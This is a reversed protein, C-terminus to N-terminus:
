YELNKYIGVITHRDCFLTLYSLMHAFSEGQSKLVLSLQDEREGIKEISVTHIRYLQMGYLKLAFLFSSLSFNEEGIPIHIELYRDDEKQYPEVYATKSVLAYKLDASGDFGFVPVIRRIKLNETFLLNEVTPLRLGGKEEIPFLCYGVEDSLLLRAGESFSSVYKVRAEPTNETIVDYAEDALTNKVYAFIPADEGALFFDEESLRINKERLKELLLLVFIAKENEKINRVSHWVAEPYVSNDSRNEWLSADNLVDRLAILADVPTIDLNFFYGISSSIEDALSSLESVKLAVSQYFERDNEKLNDLIVSPIEMNFDSDFM